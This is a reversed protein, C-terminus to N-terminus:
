YGGLFAPKLALFHGLAGEQADLGRYLRYNLTVNESEPLFRAVRLLATFLEEQEFFNRCLNEGAQKTIDYIARPQPVLEEDVWVAHAGRIALLTDTTPAPLLDVAIAAYGQAHLRKTM